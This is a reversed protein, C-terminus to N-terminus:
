RASSAGLRWVTADHPPLRVTLDGAARRSKRGAGLLRAADEFPVGRLSAPLTMQADVSGDSFNLAVLVPRAGEEAARADPLRVYALVNADPEVDLLVMRGRRLAPEDRRLRILRRYRAERAPDPTLELPAEQQYPHYALGLEQGTFLAPLGPLTLLMAAAVRELGPGHRTSFREGTDNNDLFRLVKADASFGQGDATLAARLADVDATEGEFVDKWAWQGVESTWDYAVDFGGEFYEARRASAEAVLLLEPEIRVLERRLEAFFDPAREHVGWSADVRFGDVDLERVWYSFAETMWRRVEPNDYDLNPLNEWDFYHQPRGEEDREYFAYYPSRAGHAQAHAFYAHEDSSHNPVFDLIVRLGAEHAADVLRRFSETSGWGERVAFYDDVAYGYDGDPSAFSPSLWLTTVGLEVLQPLRRTVAEFAPEGFLFPVVGYLVADDVWAPNERARDVLRPRGDEVVFYVGARDELGSADRVDLWVVYEGDVAPTRLVVRAGMASSLREGAASRLPAPNGEDDQWRLSVLAAETAQNPRSRDGELVLAGDTLTVQAEARPAAPLRVQYIARATGAGAAEGETDAPPESCSADVTNAGPALPVDIAFRGAEVPARLRVGDREIEVEGCGPPATGSVRQEFAWVDGGMRDLRVHDIQDHDIQVPGVQAAPAPAPDPPPATMSGCATLLALSVLAAARLHGRRASANHEPM